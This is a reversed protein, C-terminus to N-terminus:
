LVYGGGVADWERVGRGDELEVCWWLADRAKDVQGSEEYARALALWAESYNWGSGLKTLGSLLGYARDRAALRDNLPLSTARHPPPLPPGLLSSSIAPSPSPPHGNADTPKPKTKPKTPGLGLPASPLAPSKDDKHDAILAAHSDSHPNFISTDTLSLGSLDLGPVTPPPLLKETYIDLLINSLGVIADPHDPFHNLATDFDARAQYPKERAISLNGM